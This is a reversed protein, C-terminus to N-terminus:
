TCELKINEKFTVTGTADQAATEAGKKLDYETETGEVTTHEQVGHELANFNIKAEQSTEGCQNEITGIVGNGSVVTQVGFCSFTAFHNGTGGANPTVLVGPSEGPLTVLDFPLATTAINGGTEGTSNCGIFGVRCNPGFKLSMTGTTGGANFTASGTVSDCVVTTGGSTSLTPAFTGNDITKTGSPTPNLHLPTLASAMAPLALVGASVAALALLMIKKNM